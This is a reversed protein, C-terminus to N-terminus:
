TLKQDVRYLASGVSDRATTNGKRDIGVFMVIEGDFDKISKNQLVPTLHMRDNKDILKNIDEVLSIVVIDAVGDEPNKHPHLKVNKIDKEYILAHPHNVEDKFGVNIIMKYKMNETTDYNEPLVPSMGREMTYSQLCTASTIIISETIFSGSCRRQRPKGDDSYTTAYILVISDGLQARSHFRSQGDNIRRTLRNYCKSFKQEAIYDHISETLLILNTNRQHAHMPDFSSFIGAQIYQDREQDCYFLPAGIRDDSVFHDLESTTDIILSTVVSDPDTPSMNAIGELTGLYYQKSYELVKETRKFSARMYGAPFDPRSEIKILAFDSTLLDYIPEMVIVEQVKFPAKFASNPFWVKMRPYKSDDAYQNVKYFDYVFSGATIVYHPHILSGLGRQVLELNEDWKIEIKALYEVKDSECDKCHVFIFGNFFVLVLWKIDM